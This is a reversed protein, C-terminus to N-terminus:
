DEQDTIIVIGDKTVAITHEYQASLSGDRTRATWGNDDMKTEYSGINVMPEITFVMGEKIRPGKHPLGYHPVEPKEHITPGIGHGIFNRVVSFGQAEVYTQIAHGIDGIRNGPKAQEIGKYLAEKTIELLKKTEGSVKGVPYSWASDALAGNLNVVMDITVIDGEKLPTKRPFGHCIEDNISACTAYQYGQYGKQEPTAGHERLYQDVFEEIEWTTIGPKIMKAIQKHTDALLKGAKKMMDIERQSKLTIM